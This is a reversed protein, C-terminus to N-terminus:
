LPRQEVPQTAVEQLGTLAAQQGRKDSCYRCLQEHHATEVIELTLSSSPLGFIAGNSGYSEAFTQDLMGVLDRYFRM